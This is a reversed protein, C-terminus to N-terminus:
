CSPRGSRPRWRALKAQIQQHQAIPKGFAEREQAYRIANEFAASAIGLGRAAVNVRGLEVGAM